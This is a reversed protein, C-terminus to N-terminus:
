CTQVPDSDGMVMGILIGLQIIKTGLEVARSLKSVGPKDGVVLYSTKSSVSDSMKGGHSKIYEMIENRSFGDLTGTVVFTLGELKNDMYLDKGLINRPIASALCLQNFYERYPNTFNKM